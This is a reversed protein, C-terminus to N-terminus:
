ALNLMIEDDNYAGRERRWAVSDLTEDASLGLERCTAVALAQQAIPDPCRRARRRAGVYTPADRGAFRGPLTGACVTM